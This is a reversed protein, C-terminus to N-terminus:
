NKKEIYVTTGEIRYDLSARHCIIMLMEMVSLGEASFTIRPAQEIESPEVQLQLHIQKKQGAYEFDGVLTNLFKVASDIKANLQINHPPVTSNLKELILEDYSVPRVVTVGDNVKWVYKDSSNKPHITFPVDPVMDRLQDENLQVYYAQFEGDGMSSNGSYNSKTIVIDPHGQAKLRFNFGTNEVFESLQRYDQGSLWEEIGMLFKDERLSGGAFKPVDEDGKWYVANIHAETIQRYEVFPYAYPEIPVYDRGSNAKFFKVLDDLMEDKIAHGVANYTVCQARPLKQKYVARSIAWRDPMMIAAIAERIIEAEEERWADRSPLTDNRDMYGMYIYQAIRQHAQEDYPKGTFKEIDAIGIPFPLACGNRESIPLTPLGNVGGSAAAKVLEPYLFAFRNCFKASASFGHMFIKDHMQIDNARLLEHAFDIMAILQLDIRKLQGENIELTDRDLAHTYCRWNTRSRPFTPVLLPVNLKRAIRNPYSSEALKLAKQLHVEFDDSATGTNNTEVYLYSAQGKDITEPIFLYFPFNFGRESDAEVKIIDNGSLEIRQVKSVVTERASVGSPHISMTILLFLILSNLQKLM